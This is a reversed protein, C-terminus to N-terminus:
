VGTEPTGSDPKPRELVRLGGPKGTRGWSRLSVLAALAEGAHRHAEALYRATARTRGQYPLPGHADRFAELERRLEARLANTQEILSALRAETVNMTKTSM